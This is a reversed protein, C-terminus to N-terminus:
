IKSWNSWGRRPTRKSTSKWTFSVLPMGLRRNCLDVGRRWQPKQVEIGSLVTQHFGFHLRELDETMSPAYQDAASFYLFDKLQELSAEAFIRNAKECFTPQGVIITQGDSLGVAKTYANWDYESLLERVESATKKNYNKIPDRLEVQPLQAEAFKTELTVVADAVAEPNAHEFSKMLQAIYARYAVLTEQFRKDSKLYYDRDPLTTGGQFMYVAYEDSKKADPEIGLGFMGGIGVRELEGAVRAWDSKSQISKIKIFVEKLGRIGRENRSQTDM